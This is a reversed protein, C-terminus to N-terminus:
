SKELHICAIAYKEIPIYLNELLNYISIKFSSFLLKSKFTVIIKRWLSSLNIRSKKKEKRNNLKCLLHIGVLDVQIFITIFYLELYLSWFALCLFRFKLM